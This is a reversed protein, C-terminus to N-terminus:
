KKEKQEKKEPVIVIVQKQPWGSLKKESEQGNNFQLVSFLFYDIL